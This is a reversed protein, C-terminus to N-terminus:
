ESIIRPRAVLRVDGKTNDDLDFGFFASGSGTMEIFQHNKLVNKAERIVLPYKTEAALQFANYMNKNVLEYNKSKLAVYLEYPDGRVGFLNMEDILDYMKGTPFGIAPIYLDMKLDLPEIKKIKEGTGEVIACGGDIFFPVDSGILAAMEIAGSIHRSNCLYSLLAAADASGGGFGSPSPINKELIINLCVHQGTIKEFIKLTKYLTNSENWKLDINSSFTCRDSEEIKLTDYLSVNHMLTIIDHYGDKRKSLIALYFNIKAFAKITIM